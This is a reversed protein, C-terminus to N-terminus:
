YFVPISYVFVIFIIVVLAWIAGKLCSKAKLPRTEHWIIYLILGLLPFFFSFVAFVVNPKDVYNNRGQTAGCNPCSVASSHIEKACGRCFVMENM